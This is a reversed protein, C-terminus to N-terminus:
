MSSIEATATHKVRYSEKLYIVRSAGTPPEQEVAKGTLKSVFVIKTEGERNRFVRELWVDKDGVIPAARRLKRSARASRESVKKTDYNLKEEVSLKSCGRTMLSTKFKFNNERKLGLMQIADRSTQSAATRNSGPKLYFNDAKNM